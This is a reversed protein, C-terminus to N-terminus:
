SPADAPPTPDEDPRSGSRSGTRAAAPPSVAAEDEAPEVPAELREVQPLRWLASAITLGIGACLMTLFWDSANMMEMEFFERLPALALIGAFLAGLILIM